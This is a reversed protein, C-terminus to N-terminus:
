TFFCYVGRYCLKKKRTNKIIYDQQGSSRMFFGLFFVSFLVYGQQGSSRMSFFCAWVTLWIEFSSYPLAAFFFEARFVSLFVKLFAWRILFM